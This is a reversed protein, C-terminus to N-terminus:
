AYRMPGVEDILGCEAARDLFEELGERHAYTFEFQMNCTLDRIALDAPWDSQPGDRQAIRRLHHQGRRRAGLLLQALEAWNGEAPAAWMAFVFPLGTMEHWMSVPDIQWDFGIPPATVVKDGIVLVAEADEAPEWQKMRFPIIRLRRDFEEQWLVQALAVSTHSDMDTWLVHIRDPRVRSFIRVSLARREAALCAVPLITLEGNFRQLDISPLLVADALDWALKDLLNAPVDRILRVSEATRLGELLPRACLYPAAAVRYARGAQEGSPGTSLIFQSEKEEM